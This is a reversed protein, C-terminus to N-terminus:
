VSNWRCLTWYRTVVLDTLTLVITFVMIRLMVNLDGMTILLKM